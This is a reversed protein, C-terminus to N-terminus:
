YLPAVGRLLETVSYRTLRISRRYQRDRGDAKVSGNIHDAIHGAYRSIVRDIRERRYLLLVAIMWLVDTPIRNVSVHLGFVLQVYRGMAWDPKPRLAWGIRGFVLVEARLDSEAVRAMDAALDEAGYPEQRALVTEIASAAAVLEEDSLDLRASCLAGLLRLSGELEAGAAAKKVEDAAELMAGYSAVEGCHPCSLRARTVGRWLISAPVSGETYPDAARCHPCLTEAPISRDLKVDM